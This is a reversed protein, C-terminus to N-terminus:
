IKKYRSKELFRNENSKKLSIELGSIKELWDNKRIKM